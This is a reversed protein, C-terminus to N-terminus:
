TFNSIIYKRAEQKNRIFGRFQYEMIQEKIKGVDSGSKIGLTKKIDNGDMMINKRMNLFDGARKIFRGTFRKKSLSIIIALEHINDEAKLFMNFLRKESIRVKGNQGYKYLVQLSKRIRNSMRIMYKSPILLKDEQKESRFLFYLRILGARSLGQSFESNIYYRLNNYNLIKKNSLLFNDLQTIININKNINDSTLSIIKSIVKDNHAMKIYYNSNDRNLINFLEETIRERSVRKLAHAYKKLYRRTNTDIHFGLQASLRYARLIRLPDKLLNEYNVARIIGKEIDALYDTPALIGSDASWAIANITFDRHSLDEWIGDTLYTFDIFSGDKLAVRFTRQKQLEIIKGRFKKATRRSIASININTIFDKDKSLTGRLLDRLYGGVLYIDKIQSFIWKNLPDSLIKQRINLNM